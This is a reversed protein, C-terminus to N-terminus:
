KQSATAFRVAVLLYAALLVLSATVIAIDLWSMRRM